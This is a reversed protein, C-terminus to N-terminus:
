YGLNYAGYYNTGDFYFSILDIKGVATSLTPAGADGWKVSAPWTITYSGTGGQIVRLTFNGSGGGTPDTFTLTENQTLTISQKQNDNWDISADAATESGFTIVKQGTLNAKLALATDVQLKNVADGNSTGTALGIIKYTTGM